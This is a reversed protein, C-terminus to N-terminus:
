HVRAGIPESVKSVKNVPSLAWSARRLHRSARYILDRLVSGGIARVPVVILTKRAHLLTVPEVDLEQHSGGQTYSTLLFM